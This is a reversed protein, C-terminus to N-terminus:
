KPRQGALSFERIMKESAEDAKVARIVEALNECMMYFIMRGLEASAPSPDGAFHNPYEAYWDFGTYVGKKRLDALREFSRGENPDQADMYVLDPKLYMMVSTETLGAHYGLDETKAFDCIIRNQDEKLHGIYYTYVNYARDLRPMEQAFYPLFHNNGGHSSAIIIKKFGNRYIEDCMELLADMMLRHSAAITGTYHRAESIQGLFYYPFVISKETEAAKKCVAQGTFMDTGVPLHNGHKELVGIPLLCVSGSDNISGPFDKATLEEWLMIM